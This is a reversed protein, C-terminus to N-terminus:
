LRRPRSAAVGGQGPEDLRALRELVRHDALHLLRCADKDAVHDVAAALRPREGGRQHQAELCSHKGTLRVDRVVLQLVHPPEGTILNTAILLPCRTQRRGRRYRMPQDRVPERTPSSPARDGASTLPAPPSLAACCRSSNRSPAAHKESPKSKAVSVTANGCIRDVNPNVCM